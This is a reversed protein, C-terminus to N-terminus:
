EVWPNIVGVGMPEFHKTNRTAVSFGKALASAAIYADPAEVRMGHKEAKVGATALAEAADADFPLVRGELMAQVGQIWSLLRERRKGGLLRYAGYKLEALTVASIYLTEAEQRDLWEVVHKDPDPKLMESLVNTDLVIM